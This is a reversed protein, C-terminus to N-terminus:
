VREFTLACWEGKIIERTLKLPLKLYAATVDDKRTKLIGSLIIKAGENMNHLIGQSLFILVDAVINVLLIDGKIDVHDLLNCCHYVLGEEVGNLVANQRSAKVAVPDIDTLIVSKAGLKAATIGLIGSGCGVDLVTKEKFNEIQLLEVCMATTEHEGTGFAMGPDLKVVIVGDTIPVELWEPCIIVKGIPIPRYHKKWVNFWDEDDIEKTVIELSGCLINGEANVKLETLKDRLESYKEEYCDSPVFGKVLVAEDMDKLVGGDMYDWNKGSKMFSIVDARDYMAVGNGGSEQLIEAVLESCEHTTYVTVETWKM